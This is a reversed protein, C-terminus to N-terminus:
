LDWDVLWLKEGVGRGRERDREKGVLWVHARSACAFVPFVNGGEGGKGQGQEGEGGGGEASRRKQATGRM